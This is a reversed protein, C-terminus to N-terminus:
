EVLQKLYSSFLKCMLFSIVFATIYIIICQSFNNIELGITSFVIRLANAVLRHMCYIGLTYKTIFKITKRVNESLNDLPLIYSFGVVLIVLLINNNNSYGFGPASPIISFKFLLIIGIGLLIISLTRKKRVWNYLNFYAVSYGLVAYPIMEFFRGLPYKLEYRLTGFLMNNYGSYEFYLSCITLIFFFLLGNRKNVFRLVVMFLLTLAILVTQFWMSPNLKPSHGTVIQWILDTFSISLNVKTQIFYYILWYIIAWGIQPYVIRWIRKKTKSTNQTDFTKASFYFSIFMFTPVALGKLSYFPILFTTAPDKCFHILVVEFCM